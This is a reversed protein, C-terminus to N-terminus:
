NQINYHIIESFVVYWTSSYLAIPYYLYKLTYSLKMRPIENYWFGFDSCSSFPQKQKKLSAGHGGHWRWRGGGGGEGVKRKYFPSIVQFTEWFLGAGPVPHYRTPVRHDVEPPAMGISVNGCLPQWGCVWYLLWPVARWTFWYVRCQFLIPLYFPKYHKFTLVPEHNCLNIWIFNVWTNSAWLEKGHMDECRWKVILIIVIIIFCLLLSIVTLIIIATM